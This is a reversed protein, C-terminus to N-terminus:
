KKNNSFIKLMFKRRKKIEITIYKWVFYVIEEFTPYKKNIIPIIKKTFIDMVFYIIM